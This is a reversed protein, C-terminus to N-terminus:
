RRGRATGLCYCSGTGPSEHRNTGRNRNTNIAFGLECHGPNGQSGKRDALATASKRDPVGQVGPSTLSLIRMEIGSRDMEVLCAKTDILRREIDRTYAVGNRSEEGKSDWLGSNIPTWFHEELAIKGEM